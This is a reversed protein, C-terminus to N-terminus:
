VPIGIIIRGREGGQGLKLNLLDTSKVSQLIYFLMSFHLPRRLLLGWDYKEPEEHADASPLQLPPPLIVRYEGCHPTELCVLRGKFFSSFHQETDRM